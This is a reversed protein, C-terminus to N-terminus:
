SFFFFVWFRIVAPVWHGTCLGKGKGLAEGYKRRDLIGEDPSTVTMNCTNERLGIWLVEGVLVILGFYRV